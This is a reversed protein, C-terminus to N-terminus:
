SDNSEDRKARNLNMQLLNIDSYLRALVSEKTEEDMQSLVTELELIANSARDVKERELDKLTTVQNTNENSQENKSPLKIRDEYVGIGITAALSLVIILACIGGVGRYREWIRYHYLEESILDGSADYNERVTIRGLWDYNCLSTGLINDTGDYSISSCKNAEWSFVTRGLLRGEADYDKTEALRHNVYDLTRYGLIHDDTLKTQKVLYESGSYELELMNFFREGSEYTQKGNITIFNVRGILDEGYFSEMYLASEDGCRLYEYRYHDGHADGVLVIEDGKSPSFTVKYNGFLAREFTTKSVEVGNLYQTQVMATWKPDVLNAPDVYDNNVKFDPTIRTLVYDPQMLFGTTVALIALTVTFALIAKLWDKMHARKVHREDVEGIANLIDDPKM